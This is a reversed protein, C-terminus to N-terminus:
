KGNKSASEKILKTVESVLKENAKELDDDAKFPKGIRIVLNRSRDKYDGYIGFPVILADTKHAMSVCGFKFPM